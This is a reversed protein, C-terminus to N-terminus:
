RKTVNGREIYIFVMSDKGDTQTVRMSRTASCSTASFAMWVMAGAVALYTAIKCTKAFKPNNEYFQQISKM